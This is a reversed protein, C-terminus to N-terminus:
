SLDSGTKKYAPRDDHSKIHTFAHRASLYSNDHVHYVKPKVVNAFSAESCLGVAGGDIRLISSTKHMRLSPDQDMIEPRLLFINDFCVVVYKLIQVSSDATILM